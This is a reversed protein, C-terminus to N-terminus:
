IGRHALVGWLPRERDLRQSMIRGILRCLAADDGPASLATRRLHFDLDIDAADVATRSPKPRRRSRSPPWRAPWLYCPPM